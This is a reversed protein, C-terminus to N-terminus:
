YDLEGYGSAKIQDHTNGNEVIKAKLKLLDNRNNIGIERLIKDNRNTLIYNYIVEDLVKKFANAEDFDEAELDDEEYPEDLKLGEKLNNLKILFQEFLPFNEKFKRLYLYIGIVAEFHFYNNNYYNIKKNLEILMANEMKSSLRKKFLEEYQIALYPDSAISNLAADIIEKKIPFLSHKLYEEKRFDEWEKKLNNKAYNFYLDPINMELLIDEIRENKGKVVQQIYEDMYVPVFKFVKQEAQLWFNNYYDRCYILLLEFYTYPEQTRNHYMNIGFNLNFKKFDYSLIINEIENRKKFPVFPIYSMDGWKMGYYYIAARLYVIPDDCDLIKNLMINKQKDFNKLPRKNNDKIIVKDYNLLDIMIHYNNSDAIINILEELYPELKEKDFNRIISQCVFLSKTKIFFKINELYFNDKFDLADKIILNDIELDKNSNEIVSLQKKMIKLEKLKKM